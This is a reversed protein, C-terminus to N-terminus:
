APRRRESAVTLAEDQPTDDVPLPLWVEVKTGLGRASKISLNASSGYYCNLRQEVNAIGLGRRRARAIEIDSAGAGTDRVTICLAPSAASGESMLDEVQASVIVEGGGRCPAIGHKIANEVLPQILLTPIRISRLSEPVEFSTRLREEFRAREIDLYSEILTIEEGLTVFEGGPRLVARLLETLRMLTGLANAPATQILYGITTLANFLFHPNIQARLARLEAETVLKSIEQERLTQECREHTIRLKDLQRAVVFAVAELMSVDDSLLRRGASLEGIILAYSPPEATPILVTAGSSRSSAIVIRDLADAEVDADRKSLRNERLAAATQALSTAGSIRPDTSEDLKIWSTERASLAPALLACVGDLM